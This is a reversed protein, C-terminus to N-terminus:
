IKNSETLFNDIAKSFTENQLVKDWAREMFNSPEFGPHIWSQEDSEDSVRRFKIYNGRGQNDQIRQLGAYKTNKHEYGLINKGKNQFESPIKNELLGRTKNTLPNIAQKKVLDEIPKPMKDSFIESEAIAESTAVRFPITLYWGGDEKNTKKSSRSFGEKLDYSQAGEEIMLAVKSKGKGDLVFIAAKGDDVYEMRMGMLYAEKTQHLESLVMDEWSAMYERSVEAIIYKSLSDSEEKSLSFEEITNSIDLNFPIM